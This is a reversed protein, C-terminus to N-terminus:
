TGVSFKKVTLPKSEEGSHIPEEAAHAQVTTGSNTEASPQRGTSSHSQIDSYM